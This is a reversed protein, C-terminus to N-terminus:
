SAECEHRFILSMRTANKGICGRPVRTTGHSRVSNKRFRGGKATLVGTSRCPAAAAAPPWSDWGFPPPLHWKTLRNGHLAERYATIKAVHPGAEYRVACMGAAAHGQDFRSCPCRAM